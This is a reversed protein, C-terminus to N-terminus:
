ECIAQKISEYKIIGERIVKDKNIDYITSAMKANNYDGNIFVIKNRNKGFYLIADDKNKIPDKGSINASSSYLPGIESLIKLLFKENPMRYSVGDYVLTLPGPWFRQAIKKFIDNTNPICEINPVFKILKKYSPRKKIKYINNKKLSIMGAVTDTPCILVKNNKIEFIISGIESEKKEYTVFDDVFCSDKM